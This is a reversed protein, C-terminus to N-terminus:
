FPYDIAASDSPKDLISEAVEKNQMLAESIQENTLQHEQNANILFYKGDHSLVYHELLNIKLVNAAATITGTIPIDGIASTPDGSPKVSGSPHNHAVIFDTAGSLILGRFLAPIDVPVGVTVGKHAEEVYLIDGNINTGIVFFVERDLKRVRPLLLM